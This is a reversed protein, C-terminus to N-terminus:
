SPFLFVYQTLLQRVRISLHIALILRRQLISRGEKCAKCCSTVVDIAEKSYNLRAEREERLQLWHRVLSHISIFIGNSSHPDHSTSLLLLEECRAIINWFYTSNWRLCREKSVDPLGVAHRGPPHQETENNFEKDYSEGDDSAEGRSLENEESMHGDSVAFM